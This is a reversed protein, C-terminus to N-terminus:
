DEQTEGFNWRSLEKKFQSYHPLGEEESWSRERGWSRLPKHRERTSLHASGSSHWAMTFQNNKNGDMVREEFHFHSSGDDYPSIQLEGRLNDFHWTSAVNGRMILNPQATDALRNRFFTGIQMGAGAPGQYWKLGLGTLDPAREGKVGGIEFVTMDDAVPRKRQPLDCLVDLKQLLVELDLKARYTARFFAALEEMTAHEDPDPGAPRGFGDCGCGCAGIKELIARSEEDQPTYREEGNPLRRYKVNVMIDTGHIPMRRPRVGEPKLGLFRHRVDPLMRDKLGTLFPEHPEVARPDFPLPM